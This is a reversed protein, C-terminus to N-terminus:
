ETEKISRTEPWINVLQKVILKSTNREFVKLRRTSRVQKKMKGGTVSEIARFVVINPSTFLCLQWNMTLSIDSLLKQVFTGFHKISAIELIRELSLQPYSKQQFGLSRWSCDLKTEVSGSASFKGEKDGSQRDKLPWLHGLKLFKLDKM